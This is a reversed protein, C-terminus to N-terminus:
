CQMLMSIVTKYKKVNNGTYEETKNQLLPLRCTQTVTRHPIALCANSSSRSLEIVYLFSGFVYLFLFINLRNLFMCIPM